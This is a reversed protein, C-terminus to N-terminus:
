SLFGLVVYYGILVPLSVLTGFTVATSLLEAHLGYQRAYLFAAISQPLAAQIVAVRLTTGNLGVAFAGIAMTAPGAIFRLVMSFLTLKVGCAILKEQLAMFLGMSFMNLGSGGRSMILVSAEVIHPMKFHWRQSIFAWIIGVISAYSNPNRALKLLVIKMISWFFPRSRIMLNENGEIDARTDGANSTELSENMAKRFEFVFLLATLWIIAQVVSSQVVLAVADKGYMAGLLPVGVVLTNSLTSLSFNTISWSYSGASSFKAWVVLVVITILKSIADAFIFQYNMKFSEISTTLEFTLLPLSFVYVLRNIAVCQDPTFMHWWRVSGYGLCLALYLPTMSEVVKYVDAWGIM